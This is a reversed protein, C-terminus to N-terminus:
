KNMKSSEAFLRSSGSPMLDKGPHSGMSSGVEPAQSLQGQQDTGSPVQQCPDPRALLVAPYAVGTWLLPAKNHLVGMYGGLKLISKKLPQM